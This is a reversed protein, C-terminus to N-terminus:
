FIGRWCFDSLFSFFDWYNFPPNACSLHYFDQTCSVGIKIFCRTMISLDITLIKVYPWISLFYKDAANKNLVNILYGSSPLRTVPVASGSALAWFSSSSSFNHSSGSPPFVSHFYRIGAALMVSASASLAWGGAGTSSVGCASLFIMPLHM